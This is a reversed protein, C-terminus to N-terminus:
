IREEMHQTLTGLLSGGLTGQMMKLFEGSCHLCNRGPKEGRWRAPPPDSSFNNRPSSQAVGVPFRLDNFAPPPPLDWRGCHLCDSGSLQSSVNETRVTHDCLQFVFLSLGQSELIIRASGSYKISRKIPSWTFNNRCFVSRHSTESWFLSWKNDLWPGWPWQRWRGPPGRASPRQTRPRGAARRQLSWRWGRAPRCITLSSKTLGLEASSYWHSIQQDIERRRTTIM